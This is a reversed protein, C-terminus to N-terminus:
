FEVQIGCTYMKPTPYYGNDYGPKQGLNGSPDKSGVEPDYGTYKTFTFLNTGSVYFRARSINLKKLISEPLTIGLQVSKVRLFSADELFYTSFRWNNNSSKPDLRAINTNPNEPTWANLVDASKNDENSQRMYLLNNYTQNYVSVNKVGQFFISFDFIKYNCDLNFGYIYDPIIKGIIIRDDVTVVGDGNVDKFKLDGPAAGAQKAHNDIDAQSQFIGEYVYGYFSGISNGIGNYAGYTNDSIIIPAPLDVIKNKITTLNASIGYHFEGENKRYLVNFEFGSNRVRGLNVWPKAQALKGSIAPVPQEVLMNKQDKIYYEATFQIKNNFLSLDTAINTMIAEEWKLYPNAIRTYSQLGYQNVQSTGFPYRVHDLEDYVEMYRFTGFNCNGTKGWGARLKWMSIKDKYDQLFDENIKWAAAFSPFNGMRNENGFKSSGDRRFNATFLYKGKYDYLIRGLYSLM